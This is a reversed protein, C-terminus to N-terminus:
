ESSRQTWMMVMAIGSGQALVGSARSGPVGGRWRRAECGGPEPVELEERREVFSGTTEGEEMYVEGVEASHKTAEGEEMRSRGVNRRELGSM